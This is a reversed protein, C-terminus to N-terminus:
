NSTCVTLSLGLEVGRLGRTQLANWLGQPYRQSFHVDM